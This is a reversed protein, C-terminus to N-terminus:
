DKLCRISYGSKKNYNSRYADSNDSNMNRTWAYSADDETASWWIGSYGILSYTGNFARSGGPLATFGSSNTADSNPLMWHSNGSEKLKSGALSSGGLYDILIQWESDNPVHWGTPCLNGTNVLYWNYLAGYTNKYTAEDNNYWAYAGSTNIEWATNDTGPYIIAVGDKYKTTKLNETMWIQDGIKKISYTNDDIDTVTNYIGAEILVDIMIAVKAELNDVYEKTAADQVDTPDTVNKIQANASNNQIIVDSLGQTETYSTLKNNWYATDASTISSALSLVYVPDTEIITGTVTEASKAHLAYPVSLLQSSGTITYTSGGAPDTETKIYYPGNTWDITSFNGSLVTGSGIEISVLGNINTTPTQTEVYVETGIATGQLISLQMGVLQNTVLQNSTNRIVAQYSMKEPSQAIIIGTAFLAIAILTYIKKMIIDNKNIYIKDIGSKGSDSWDPNNRGTM